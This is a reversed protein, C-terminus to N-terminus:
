SFAHPRKSTGLTAAASYCVCSINKLFLDHTQTIVPTAAVADAAAVVAAPSMMHTLVHVNM